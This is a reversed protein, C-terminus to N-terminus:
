YRNQLSPDGGNGGAHTSTRVAISNATVFRVVSESLIQVQQGRTVANIGAGTGGGAAAGIAAGKGGGFIGGLVAGAAAGIGTKVATNKGRGKGQVSFPQTTLSIREGRSNVGTLEVTLLSAGSFHGAEHVETVRGTVTAGRPIILMDDQVIDTAVAGTFSEGVQTTASDLTQTIRIPLTSGAPLTVVRAVPPPPTAPQVPAPPPPASARTIPAPAPAPVNRVPPPPPTARVRERPPAVKQIPAIPLPTTELASVPPTEPNVTINNIVQRVGTVAAADNAALSRAANNSVGGTLTVTGGQSIVQVPESSLGSDAAIRQQVQATLTADDVVPATQKCGVAAVVMAAALAITATPSTKMGMGTKNDKMASEKTDALRRFNRVEAATGYFDTISRYSAGHM